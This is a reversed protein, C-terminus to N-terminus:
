DIGRLQKGHHGTDALSTEARSQRLFSNAQPRREVDFICDVRNDCQDCMGPSRASKSASASSLALGSCDAATTSFPCQTTRAPGPLPLVLVRVVAIARTKICSTM